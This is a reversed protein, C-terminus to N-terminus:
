RSPEQSFSTGWGRPVSSEPQFIQPSAASAENHPGFARPKTLLRYRSLRSLRSLQRAKDRGLDTLLRSLRSLPDKSGTAHTVSQRLTLRAM